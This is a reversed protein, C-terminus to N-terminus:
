VQEVDSPPTVIAQLMARIPGPIRGVDHECLDSIVEAIEPKGPSPKGAKRCLVAVVNMLRPAGALAAVSIEPHGLRACAEAVLEPGFLDEFDAPWVTLSSPELLSSRTLDETLRSVEPGGDLVIHPRVGVQKLYRLLEPLRRVGTNGKLNLLGIGRSELDIELAKALRPICGMESDGELCLLVDYGLLDTHSHGLDLLISLSDDRSISKAVSSMGGARSVLFASTAGGALGFITSHTTLFVQALWDNRELYQRLRRQAGPHLHSEPEEVLFVGGEPGTEVKTVIIASQQTGTAANEITFSQGWAESFRITAAGGRLPASSRPVGRIIRDLASCINTLLEPNEASLHNWVQALDSGDPSLANREQPSLQPKSQRLTEVWHIKQYFQLLKKPLYEDHSPPPFLVWSRQIEGRQTLKEDLDVVQDQAKCARALDMASWLLAGQNGQRRPPPHVEWVLLPKGRTNSILIRGESLGGADLKFSHTIQKLFENLHAGESAPSSTGYLETIANARDEPDLLATVEM